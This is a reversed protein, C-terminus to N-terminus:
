VVRPVCKQVSQMVGVACLRDVSSRVSASGLLIIGIIEGFQPVKLPKGHMASTLGARLLDQVFSDSYQQIKSM